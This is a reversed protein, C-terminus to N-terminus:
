KALAVNGERACAHLVSEGNRTRGYAFAGRALLMMAVKAHAVSSGSMALHLPTEGALNNANLALKENRLLLEAIPVLGARAAYHMATDGDASRTDSRAGAELLLTTIEVQGRAIARHLIGEGRGNLAELADPLGKPLGRAIIENVLALGLPSDCALHIPTDGNPDRATLSAGRTVLESAVLHHFTGKGGASCAVLLPTLRHAELADVEAGRELLHKTQGVDGKAAALHLATEQTKAAKTNPNAHALELLAAVISSTGRMVAVHLPAYGKYEGHRLRENVDLHKLSGRRLFIILQQVRADLLLQMLEKQEADIIPKPVLLVIGSRAGDASAHFRGRDFGM